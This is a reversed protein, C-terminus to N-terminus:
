KTFVCSADSPPQPLSPNVQGRLRSYKIFDTSVTKLGKEQLMLIIQGRHYSGHNVVHLLIDSLTSQHNEGALNQYTIIDSINHSNLAKLMDFFLTESIKHWDKPEHSQWIKFSSVTKLIRSNWLHAANFNHSMTQIVQEGGNQDDIINMILQNAWQNYDLKDLIHGIVSNTIDVPIMEVVKDLRLENGQLLLAFEEKDRTELTKIKTYISEQNGSDDYKIQLWTQNMAHIEFHDYFDCNIPSYQNENKM